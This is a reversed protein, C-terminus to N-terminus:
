KSSNKKREEELQEATKQSSMVKLNNLVTQTHNIIMNRSVVNSYTELGAITNVASNDINDLLNDFVIKNKIEKGSLIDLQQIIYKISIKRAVLLPIAHASDVSKLMEVENFFLDVTQAIPLEEALSPLFMKRLVALVDKSLNSSINAQDLVNLPVQFLAKRISILLDENGFTNKIIGLEKESFRSKQESMNNKEQCQENQRRM